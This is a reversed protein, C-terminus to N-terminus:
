TGEVVIERHDRFVDGKHTDGAVLSNWSRARILGSQPLRRRRAQTSFPLPRCPPCKPHRRLVVTNLPVGDLHRTHQQRVLVPGSSVTHM